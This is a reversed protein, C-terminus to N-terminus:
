DTKKTNKSYSFIVFVYIIMTIPIFADYIAHGGYPQLFKECAFAEMWAIISNPINLLPIRINYFPDVEKVRMTKISFEMVLVCHVFTFAYLRPVLLHVITWFVSRVAKRSFTQDTHIVHMFTCWFILLTIIKLKSPNLNPKTPNNYSDMYSQDKTYDRYAIVLHAAGHIFTSFSYRNMMEVDDKSVMNKGIYNVLVWIFLAFITDEYFCLAHSQWMVSGDKNSVCFGDKLADM